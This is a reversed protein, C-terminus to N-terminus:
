LGQRCPLFFVPLFFISQFAFGRFLFYILVHDVLDVPLLWGCRVFCVILSSPIFWTVNTLSHLSLLYQCAMWHYFWFLLNSFLLLWHHIGPSFFGSCRFAVSLFSKQLLSLSCFYLCLLFVSHNILIFFLSWPISSPGSASIYRSVRLLVRFFM